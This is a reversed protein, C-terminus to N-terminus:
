QRQFDEPKWTGDFAAQEPGYIRLCVFWGM